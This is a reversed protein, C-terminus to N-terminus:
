MIKSTDVFWDIERPQIDQITKISRTLRKIEYESEILKIHYYAELRTQFFEEYRAPSIQKLIEESGLHKFAWDTLEGQTVVFKKGFESEEGANLEYICFNDYPKELLKM